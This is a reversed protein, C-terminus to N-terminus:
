SLIKRFYTPLAAAITMNRRAVIDMMSIRLLLPHKSKILSHIRVRLEFRSSHVMETAVNRMDALRSLRVVVIVISTMMLLMTCFLRCRISMPLAITSAAFAPPPNVTMPSGVPIMSHPPSATVAVLKEAYRKMGATTAHTSGVNNICIDSGALSSTSHGAIGYRPSSVLRLLHCRTIISKTPM